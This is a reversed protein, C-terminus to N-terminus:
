WRRGGGGGGGGSRGRGGGGGGARSDTKPRAENVNITRGGLDKMNLGEIAALAQQDTAMEVFAFGKSEGTMRDMIIEASRVEGFAAFATELDANTTARNLNGVYLKKGMFARGKNPTDLGGTLHVTQRGAEQALRCRDCYPTEGSGYYILSHGTVVSM